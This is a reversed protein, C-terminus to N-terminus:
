VRCLFMAVPKEKGSPANIKALELFSNLLREENVATVAQNTTAM